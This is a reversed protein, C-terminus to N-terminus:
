GPPYTGESETMAKRMAEFGKAATEADVVHPVPKPEVHRKFDVAVHKCVPCSQLPLTTDDTPMPLTMVDDCQYCFWYGKIANM